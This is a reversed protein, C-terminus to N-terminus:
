LQIPFKTMFNIRKMLDAKINFEKFQHHYLLFIIKKNKKILKIM